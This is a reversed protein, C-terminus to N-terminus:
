YNPMSFYTSCVHDRRELRQMLYAHPLPEPTPGLRIKSSGFGLTAQAQSQAKWVGAKAVSLYPKEQMTEQKPENRKAKTSKKFSANRKSKPSPEPAKLTPATTSSDEETTTTATSSQTEKRVRSPLSAHPYSSGFTGGRYQMENDDDEGHMYKSGPRSGKNSRSPTTAPRQQQLRLSDDDQEPSEVLHHSQHPGNYQNEPNSFSVKSRQWSGGDFDASTSRQTRTSKRSPLRDPSYDRRGGPAIQSYQSSPEGHTSSRQQHNRAAQMASQHRSPPLGPPPLEPSEQATSSRGVHAARTADVVVASSRFRSGSASPPSEPSTKRPSRISVDGSSIDSTHALNLQNLQDKARQLITVSKGWLQQASARYGPVVLMDHEVLSLVAKTIFDAQRLVTHAEFYWEHVVPLVDQGDHFCDSERFGDIHNTALRRSNRYEEIGNYGHAIWIAAESFMCGLSWIDVGQEIKINGRDTYDDGRYCEPAGSYRTLARRNKARSSQGYTRTGQRDNALAIGLGETIKNFHSLGLDALKFQWTYRSPAGNSCVLLNAPKIDQHFSRCNTSRITSICFIVTGMCYKHAM